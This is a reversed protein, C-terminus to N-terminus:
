GDVSPGFQEAGTDPPDPGAEPDRPLATPRVLQYVGVAFLCLVLSSISVVGWVFAKIRLETREIAPRPDPIEVGLAEILPKDPLDAIDSRLAAWQLGAVLAVLGFTVAVGMAVAAHRRRQETVVQYTAEAYRLLQASPDPEPM